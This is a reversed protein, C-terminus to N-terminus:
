PEHCAYLLLIIHLGVYESESSTGLRSILVTAVSLAVPIFIGRPAHGHKSDSMQTVAAPRSTTMCHCTHTLPTWRNVLLRMVDLNLHTYLFYLNKDETRLNRDATDV